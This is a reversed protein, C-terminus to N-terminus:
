NHHLNHSNLTGYLASIHLPSMEDYGKINVDIGKKIEDEVNQM